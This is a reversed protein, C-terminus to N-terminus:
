WLYEDEISNICEVIETFNSYKENGIFVYKEHEIFLQVGIFNSLDNYGTLELVLKDSNYIIENIYEFIDDVSSFETEIYILDVICKENCWNLGLVNGDIIRYTEYKVIVEEM